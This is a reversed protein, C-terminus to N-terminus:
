KDDWFFHIPIVFPLGTTFTNDNFEIYSQGLDIDLKYRKLELQIGHTLSILPIRYMRIDSQSKALTVVVQSLDAFTIVNYEKGDLSIQPTYNLAAVSYYFAEIGRVIKESILACDDRNAVKNVYYRKGIEPTADFQAYLLRSRNMETEWLNFVEIREYNM